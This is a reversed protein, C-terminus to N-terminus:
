AVIFDGTNILNAIGTISLGELIFYDTVAYEDGGDAGGDGGAGGVAVSVHVNQFTDQWILLLDKGTANAATSLAELATDVDATTAYTQTDFIYVDVDASYGASVKGVTDFDNASFGLSLASFDLKDVTTTGTAAGWNFDTITDVGNSAVVKFVDNGAGGTLVDNGQGGTITDNGAGGILSDAGNGGTLELQYLSTVASGDVKLTGAEAARSVILKGADNNRSVIDDNLTFGYNGAGGTTVNITEVGSVGGLQAATVTSNAAQTFKLTDAGAGASLVDTASLYATTGVTFVDAQASGTVQDIGNGVTYNVINNVASFDAVVRSSSLVVGNANVITVATANSNTAKVTLEGGATVVTADDITLTASQGGALGSVDLSIVEVSSVNSLKSANAGTLDVNDSNALSAFVLTDTGEGGDITDASTLNAYAIRVTDNGDGLDVKVDGGALVVTDNGAGADITDNGGGSIISDNGAGGVLSDKGAGGTITDDGSGGTITVASAALGGLNLKGTFESADITKLNASGAFGDIDLNRDGTIVLKTASASVLNTDIHNKVATTGGTSVLNITEYQDLTLTDIKVGAAATPAVPGLTVTISDAQTNTKLTATVNDGGDGGTIALATDAALNSFTVTGGTTNSSVVRTIGAIVSADQAINSTAELVQFNSINKADSATIATGTRLTNTGEGGDITDASSLNAVVVTDNGAGGKINIDTTGLGSLTLNGTLASADVAKVANSTDTLALTLNKNGDVTVTSHGNDNITLSSNAGTATITLTEIGNVTFKGGTQGSVTLKQVDSTGAVADAAYAIELDASGNALEAAVINKVNDFKTDGTAASSSLGVTTVGTAGSLDITDLNVSTEYNSVLVKEISDLVFATTTVPATHTGSVSLNLTDVGAGGSLNDGSNFTTGNAALGNTGIVGVFTDNGATGAKTDAGTTLMFTEGSQVGGAKAAEVSAPDTTVSTLIATAGDINGNQEGYWQAVAVKNELLARAAAGAPNPNTLTVAIMEAIVSGKTAGAANLKATWFALGEADATVGLVNQYFTSIVEENTLFLPYYARAPTTGYMENAVQVMTKGSDLQQVWFGLGEGDPARGFLAVYLQSVQERMQVTIAM